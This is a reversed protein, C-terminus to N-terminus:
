HLLDMVTRMAQLLSSQAFGQPLRELPPIDEDVSQLLRVGAPIDTEM